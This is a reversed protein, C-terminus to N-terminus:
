VVSKRDAVRQRILARRAKVREVDAIELVRDAIALAVEPATLEGNARFLPRGDVDQKGEIRPRRGAPLDYLQDKMQWEILSRKEEVVLVREAGACAARAGEGELPWTMGVKYVRLGIDRALADDVGLDDLAQRVDLYSKGTTVVVLRPTPSDIVVRDLRNARAFADVAPLKWNLDSSCVDSSWDSIRM